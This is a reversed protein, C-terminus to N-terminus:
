GREPTEDGRPLRAPWTGLLGRLARRGAPVTSHGAAWVIAVTRAGPQRLLDVRLAPVGGGSLRGPTRGCRAGCSLCHRPASVPIRDRHRAGRQLPQSTPPPSPSLSSGAPDSREARVAPDVQVRVTMAEAYRLVLRRSGLLAPEDRLRRAADLQEPHGSRPARRGRQPHRLLQLPQAPLASTPWYRLKLDLPGQAAATGALFPAVSRAHHAMLRYFHARARRRTCTDFVSQVEAGVQARDLYPLRAAM